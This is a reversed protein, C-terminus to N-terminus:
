DAGHEVRLRRSPIAAVDFAVHVAVLAAVRSDEDGAIGDRAAPLRHEVAVFFGVVRAVLHARKGEVIEVEFGQAGEVCDDRTAPLERARIIRRVTAEREDEALGARAPADRVIVGRGRLDLTQLRSGFWIRNSSDM